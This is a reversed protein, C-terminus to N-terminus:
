ETEIRATEGQPPTDERVNADHRTGNRETVDEDAGCGAIAKEYEKLLFERPTGPDIIEWPLPQAPDTYADPVVSLGVAEFAKMWLEYNFHESWSDFRCGLRVAAMIAQLTRRDGKALLMEIHSARTDHFQFHVGKLRKIRDKLYFNKKRLTEEDDGRAWQFPTHPKPVFNSVSVTLNFNRKGKEQLCRARRMAAAALEVIGDLDEYTETPLGIMFYFKVRSWGLKVAKEVGSMIHEETINKHIVDRLRQTGAEPAFTLGSKKGSGIRRLTEESISDLRLSPLSLSVDKNKLDSMLEATLEGINPYDGTSLSLLSVEDYGTHALQEEILSIITEKSRRRIPRYVFGAQCFRCGRGCGRFIEVVARDHVTEIL